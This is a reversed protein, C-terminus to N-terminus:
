GAPGSTSASRALTRGSADHHSADLGERRGRFGLTAALALVAGLVAIAMDKHPDFIDGQQGNYAEAMGPALTVAIGWEFLEYLAGTSLVIDAAALAAWGQRRGAPRRVGAM